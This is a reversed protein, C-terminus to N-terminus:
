PSGSLEERGLSLRRCLDHILVLAVRSWAMSGGGRKGMDGCGGEEDSISAHLKEEWISNSRANGICVLLQTNGATWKDLSISRM